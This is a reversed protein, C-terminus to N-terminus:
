GKPSVKKEALLIIRSNSPGLFRGRHHIEGSVELVKFGVNSIMNIIEHPSYLRIYMNHELPPTGDEYIFSRKTHLTSTTHDFNVEELFICNHGEWWCRSPMQAVIHDRNVLDLLFRAGPKLSRWIGQLVKFNSIDDFFGFSSQWLLCGDFVSNFNMSRMDGHIFKVPLNNNQAVSLGRQLMDVSLDLGVVEFQRSALEMSHRGDGCALDLVRAGPQLSLSKDIFVAERTTQKNMNPSVSRQYEAQFVEAFWTERVSAPSKPQPAAKKKEASEGLLEQVVDDIEDDGSSLPPSAVPQQPAAPQPAPQQPAPQQAAVTAQPAVPAPEAVPAEQRRHAGSPAPDALPPAAAPQAVPAPRAPAQPEGAAVGPPPNLRINPSSKQTRAKSPPRMVAPHNGTSANPRPPRRSQPPGKPAAAPAAARQPQAAPPGQWEQWSQILARPPEVLVDPAFHHDEITAAANLRDEEIQREIAGRDIAEMQITRMMEERDLMPDQNAAPQQVPPLEQPDSGFSQEQIDVGPAEIQGMDDFSLEEFSVEEINYEPQPTPQPPQEEVQAPAVAQTGLPITEHLARDKLPPPMSPAADAAPPEQPLKFEPMAFGLDDELSVDSAEHTLEIVDSEENLSPNSASNDASNTM